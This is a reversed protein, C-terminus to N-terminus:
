RSIDKGYLAIDAEKRKREQEIERKLATESMMLKSLFKAFNKKQLTESNYANFKASDVEKNMKKIADQNRKVEKRQSYTRGNLVDDLYDLAEASYSEITKWDPAERRVRRALRAFLSDKKYINKRNIILFICLFLCQNM